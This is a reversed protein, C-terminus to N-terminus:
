DNNQEEPKMASKYNNIYELVIKVVDDKTANSHLSAIEVASELMMLGVFEDRHRELTFIAEGLTCNVRKKTKAM